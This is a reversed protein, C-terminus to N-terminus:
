QYFSKLFWIDHLQFSLNFVIYRERILNDELTGRQGIDVSFAVANYYRFVPFSAGFTLGTSSVQRGNLSMYSNDRYVGARYSVHKMYYRADYYNPTYEIGFRYSSAKTSSYGVGPTNEFGVDTWDSFTADLNFRWTDAINYNLAVGLQSPIHFGKINGKDYKITDTSSSSEGYAYRTRYGKIDNGLSYTAGITLASVKGIPQEYQLGFKVGFGSMVYSWGTTVTRYVSKTNYSALSYRELSGFYHSVEAGLSLRDWLTVGAGIYGRYLTGQGTKYYRIDGVESVLQDDTEYALFDYDVSSFPEIGIKFASHHYIPFSAVIHHMNFTNHASTVDGEAQSGLSTAANGAFLTNINEIGFDMMFSRPERATVAAPNLTNIVRVNRDAIGTGGMAANYATGPQNILGIGFLSYPSYGNGAVIEQARAGPATLAALLLAISLYKLSKRLM